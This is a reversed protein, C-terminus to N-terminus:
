WIKCLIEGGVNEKRAARDAIVGKSTSIVLVGLGGQVRPLKGVGRYQRLGPKSLRQLGQIAPKGDHMYKLHIRVFQKKGEAFVKVSEIFGEEKLIEAIRNTLLSTPITVKQKHARSANRVVTLFDAIFDTCPM